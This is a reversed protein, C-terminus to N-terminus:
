YLLCPTDGATRRPERGALPSAATGRRLAVTCIRGIACRVRLRSPLSTENSGNHLTACNVPPARKANRPACNVIAGLGSCRFGCCSPGTDHLKWCCSLCRAQGNESQPFHAADEQWGKAPLVDDLRLVNHGRHTM